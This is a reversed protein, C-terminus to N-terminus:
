KKFRTKIRDWFENLAAFAVMSLVFLVSIGLIVICVWGIIFAVEKM